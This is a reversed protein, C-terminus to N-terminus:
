NLGHGSTRARLAEDRIVSLDGADPSAELYRLLEAAGEKTRGLRLLILGRNRVEALNGPDLEVLWTLTRLLKELEGSHMYSVKLNNLMRILIGRPEVPGLFPRLERDPFNAVQQVLGLAADEDMLDPGSFPDLYRVGEPLRIGTLFHGPTGVGFLDLGASRGLTVMVVSLTIPLGRRTSLVYTLCSNAPDHYDERNGAFGLAGHFFGTFARAAEESDSGAAERSIAGRVQEALDALKEEWPAWWGPEWEPHELASIRLAAAFVGGEGHLEGLAERFSDLQRDRDLGHEEM